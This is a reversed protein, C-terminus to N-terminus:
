IATRKEKTLIAFMQATKDIDAKTITQRDTKYLRYITLTLWFWYEFKVAQRDRAAKLLTKMAMAKGKAIVDNTTTQATFLDVFELVDVSVDEDAVYLITWIASAFSAKSSGKGITQYLRVGQATSWALDKENQHIYELLETRGARVNFKQKNEQAGTIRGSFASPIPSGNEIAIAYRALASITTDNKMDLFQNVQRSKGGDIFEFLEEPIDFLVDATIPKGARVVAMCRHQFNMLRGQKDLAMPDFQHMRNEWLGARILRALEEAYGLNLKRQRPHRKALYEKALEPTLEITERKFEMGTM